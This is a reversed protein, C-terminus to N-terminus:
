NNQTTKGWEFKIQKYRQSWHTIHCNPFLHCHPEYHRSLRHFRLLAYQSRWLWLHVNRLENDTALIPTLTNISSYLQKRIKSYNRYVIGNLNRSIAEWHLATIHQRTVGKCFANTTSNILRALFATVSAIPSPALSTDIILPKYM